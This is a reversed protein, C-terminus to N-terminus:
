SKSFPRLAQMTNWYDLVQNVCETVNLRDTRLEIEPKNPSEYPASIGTFQKIKGQRAKAYLGKPDRRECIALPANVYIEVFQNEGVMFRAMRREARYPSILAVICIVGAEAFLKAVEGIRRINERRHEPSFGLDSCLGRRM